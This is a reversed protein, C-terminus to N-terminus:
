NLTIEWIGISGGAEQAEEQFTFGQRVLFERLDRQTHSLFICMEIEVTNCRNTHAFFRKEGDPTLFMAREFLYRLIRKTGEEEGFIAGLSVQIEVKGPTERSVHIEPPGLFAVALFPSKEPDRIELADFNELGSFIMEGEIPIALTEKTLPRWTFDSGIFRVQDKGMAYIQEIDTSSAKHILTAIGDTCYVIISKDNPANQSICHGMPFEINSPRQNTAIAEQVGLVSTKSLEILVERLVFGMSKALSQSAINDMDIAAYATSAGKERAGRISAETLLRGIGHKRYDPHVRIGEFWAIDASLYRVHTVGIAKGETDAVWLDGVDDIWDDLVEHVYDGWPFTTRTFEQIVPIDDRVARRLTIENM